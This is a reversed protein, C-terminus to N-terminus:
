SRLLAFREELKFGLFELSLSLGEVAFEVYPIITIIVSQIKLLGKRQVIREYLLVERHRHDNWGDQLNVLVQETYAEVLNIIRLSPM